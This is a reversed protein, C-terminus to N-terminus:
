LQEPGLKIRTWLEAEKGILGQTPIAKLNEKSFFQSKQVTRVFV